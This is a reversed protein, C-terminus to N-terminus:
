HTEHRDGYRYLVRKGVRVLKPLGGKWAVKGTKCTCLIVLFMFFFASWGALFENVCGNHHRHTM